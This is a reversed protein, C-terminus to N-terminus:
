STFGELLVNKFEEAPMPKAYYYGQIDKCGNSVLFEKQEKTEVGEAIVRLNLNKALSIVAKTIEADDTDNPLDKVFSQDIKLKSIPLKKLYSLSSYGTGFDDIALEVGLDNIQNLVKITEEPNTILQSETVEFEVWEPECQTEDFMVVLIEIFDKQQLQKISLNLALVGPNLGEKHWEVLQSMATRMVYRDLEVIMGTAEALPIFNAPSVLGMTAHQWRVLAEMGILENKEANVQAQYYVIFNSNKLALRLSTEMVVRQSALETMEVSYFQYNNRGEDKAKYMASDAYKLLNSVSTGDEPYLSIGISSSVYLMNDDINIADALVKLIKEALISADNGDKMEEMIITFEDGGLRALTDEDRITNQLRKTTVKLIEDGIAHGLSDNIEKFHDLDIFLLAMKTENRKAKEIAQELRDNFLIRNPLATLADHHAQYKLTHQQKLLEYEAQKRKTIDQSYGVMHTPNGDEDRLISLALAVSVPEKSKKVLTTDLNYEGEKMLMEINQQLQPIDEKRYIMSIHKGIVEAAKYGLILQAGYNWTVIFGELDTSIVSDHTQEIMQAQQAYKLQMEKDDNIDTHTGIMRIAKGSEDFQTKGRDLIWVWHGDKHKMRHTNEYFETEGEMNKTADIWVGDIDDPHVRNTWSTLENPLEDDSYGIMEKWRPSFYVSDEVIDWDWIGDNSGLLALEMREKLEKNLKESTHLTEILDNFEHSLESIEELGSEDAKIHKNGGRLRKMTTILKLLQKMLGNAVFFAFIIGIIVSLITFIVGQYISSNITAQRHAQDLRIHVLGIHLNDQHIVRVIDIYRENELIIKNKNDHVITPKLSEELFTVRPKDAIFKGVLAKDSHAIIKGDTNIIGVFVLDDYVSFNDIVEDLGIYDNAMIWTKSTTALALSRNKAQTLAEEHLFGSQYKTITYTFTIIIVTLIFGFGYILQTRFSKNWLNLFMNTM